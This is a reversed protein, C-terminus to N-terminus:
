LRGDPDVKPSPIGIAELVEKLKSEDNRLAQWEENNKVLLTGGLVTGNLAIPGIIEGETSKIKLGESVRPCLVMVRDTLGMNYSIRSEGKRTAELLSFSTRSSGAFQQAAKFAKEHLTTYIKNLQSPTAADPIKSVFYTFPLDATGQNGTLADALVNWTTGEDVGSRMSEVPLFQIHRHPQSAGSHEGSNFFGFLEDGEARYAKLCDYAAGLDGEELLDTQEKFAKTALIFHDPIVPFKNLVLYHTTSLDAVFLGKPPNEFPDV